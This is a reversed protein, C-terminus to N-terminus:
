PSNRLEDRFAMVAWVTLGAFLVGYVAIASWDQLGAIVAGPIVVALSASIARWNFWPTQPPPMRTPSESSDGGRSTLALLVGWVVISGYLAGTVATASWDGLGALVGAVIAVTLGGIEPIHDKRWV